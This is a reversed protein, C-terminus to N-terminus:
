PIRYPRKAFLLRKRPGFNRACMRVWGDTLQKSALWEARVPSIAAVFVDVFRCMNPWRVRWMRPLRECLRTHTLTLTAYRWDEGNEGCACEGLRSCMALCAKARRARAICARNQIFVYWEYPVCVRARRFVDCCVCVCACVSPHFFSFCHSPLAFTM